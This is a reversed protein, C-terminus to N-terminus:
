KSPWAWGEAQLMRALMVREDSRSVCAQICDSQECIAVGLQRLPQVDPIPPQEAESLHVSQIRQCYLAISNRLLQLTLKNPRVQEDVCDALLTVADELMALSRPLAAHSDAPHFYQLVPYALHREAHEMLDSSIGLLQEELPDFSDGDWGNELIEVASDGLADITLALKRKEIVASIVSVLYTITLSIIVLGNFSAVMSVLRWGSGDAVLDGTGLTLFVMGAFYARDWSTSPDYTLQHVVVEPSASFVLTWGLWMPVVWALFIMVLTVVANMELIWHQKTVRFHLRSGKWCAMTVLATLPGGGRTSLASWLVDILPIAILLVGAVM